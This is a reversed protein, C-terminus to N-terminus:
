TYGCFLKTNLDDKWYDQEGYVATLGQVLVTSTNGKSNPRTRALNYGVTSVLAM